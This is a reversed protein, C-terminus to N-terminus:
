EGLDELNLGVDVIIGRLDDYEADSAAEIGTWGYFDNNGISEGWAETQSFAFLADVVQVRIDAPFDPSFALADNPAYLDTLTLIKVKQIVDPAETRINPRADLPRWEGCYLKDKKEANIACTPVVDDPIDVKTEALTPDALWDEYTWWPGGGSEPSLPVSYYTTVFDVEGNYLAKVAATHGGTEVAEGPTIGAGEFFALPLLRGSTSTADTYGWKKGDLDAVTQIDGDRLVLVQSWYIPFGYRIAKFSVDVGCLQNALVYGVPPIFTMTDTPSACMEEITAAYSTPVVVEFHLGTAENLADAMIEGGTVIVGTDTSPVFLVKIPHEESGITAPAETPEPAPPETPAETPEPEPPAETAQPGCAALILALAAVLAFLLYTFRKNM